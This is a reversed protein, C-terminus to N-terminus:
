MCVYMIFLLRDIFSKRGELVTVFVFAADSLGNADTVNLEFKYVGKVLKSATAKMQDKNVIESMKPGRIYCFGINASSDGSVFSEVSVLEIQTWFYEKIGHDDSSEQGNLIVINEPLTVTQNEGGNAIPPHNKEPILNAM